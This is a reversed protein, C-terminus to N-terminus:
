TSPREVPADWVAYWRELEPEMPLDTGLAAALRMELPNDRRREGRPAFPYFTGRGYAYVLDVAGPEGDFGFVACLLRESFGREELSRSVVHTTTVLDEIDPDDIVVWSFGVGDEHRSVTTGSDSSTAALLEEIERVLAEFEAMAIPKFCVGARGTTRLGLGAEMTLAASGLAFLADLDARPPTRQGRLVDLLGM